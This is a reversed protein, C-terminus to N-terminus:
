KRAVEHGISGLNECTQIKEQLNLLMQKTFMNLKVSTNRTPMSSTGSTWHTYQVHADVHPHLFKENCTNSCTSKLIGQVVEHADITDINRWWPVQPFKNVNDDM